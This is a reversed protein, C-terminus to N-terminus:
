QSERQPADQGGRDGECVQSWVTMRWGGIGTSEMMGVLPLSGQTDKYGRLFQRECKDIIPTVSIYDNKPGCGLEALSAKLDDFMHPYAMLLMVSTTAQERTLGEQAYTNRLDKAENFAEQWDSGVPLGAEYANYAEFFKEMFRINLKLIWHSDQFGGAAAKAMIRHSDCAHVRLFGFRLDGAGEMKDALQELQATLEHSKALLLHSGAKSTAQSTRGGAALNRITLPAQPVPRASTGTVTGAM